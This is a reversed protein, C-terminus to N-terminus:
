DRNGNEHSELNIEVAGILISRDILSRRVLLGAFM